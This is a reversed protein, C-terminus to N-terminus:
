KFDEETLKVALKKSEDYLIEKVDLITLKMESLNNGPGVGFKDIIAELSKDRLQKIIDFDNM